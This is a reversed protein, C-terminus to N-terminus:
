KTAEHVRAGVDGSVVGTVVGLGDVVLGAGDFLLAVVTGGLFDGTRITVTTSESVASGAGAGLKLSQGLIQFPAGPALLGAVLSLGVAWFGILWRLSPGTEVPDPPSKPPSPKRGITHSSSASKAGREAPTRIGQDKNKPDNLGHNESMVIFERLGM